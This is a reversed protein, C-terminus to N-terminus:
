PKPANRVANDDPPEVRYGPPIPVTFVGEDFAPDNAKVERTTYVIREMRAEALTPTRETHRASTPFWIGPAAEALTLVEDLESLERANNQFITAEYRIRAYGRAPDFWHVASSRARDGFTVRVAEVGNVRDLAIESPGLKKAVAEGLLASFSRAEDDGGYFAISFRAGTSYLYYKDTLLSPPNRFVQVIRDPVLRGEPGSQHRVLHGVNGDYGMAFVQEATPATGNRWQQVARSIDM